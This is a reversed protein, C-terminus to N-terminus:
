ATAAKWPGLERHLSFRFPGLAWVSKNRIDQRGKAWSFPMLSLSFGINRLTM